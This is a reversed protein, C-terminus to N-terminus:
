LGEQPLGSILLLTKYRLTSTSLSVSHQMNIIYAGGLGAVFTQFGNGADSFVFYGGLMASALWKEAVLFNVSPFYRLTQSSGGTSKFDIQGKIQHVFQTKNSMHKLIVGFGPRYDTRDPKIAMRFDPVLEVHKSILYTGTYEVFYQQLERVDNQLRFQLEASNRWQSTSGWAVRNGVYLVNDWGSTNNQANSSFFMSILVLFLLFTKKIMM